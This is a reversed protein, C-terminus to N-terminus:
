RQQGSEEAKCFGCTGGWGIVCDHKLCTFQFMFRRAPMNMTTVDIKRFGLGIAAAEPEIIELVKRSQVDSWLGRPDISLAAIRQEARQEQPTPGSISALLDSLDYKVIQGPGYIPLRPKGWGKGDRHNLAGCDMCHYPAASMLACEIHAHPCLEDLKAIMRGITEVAPSVDFKLTVELGGVWGKKDYRNIAGCDECHTHIDLPWTVVEGAATIIHTKPMADSFLAYHSTRKHKCKM